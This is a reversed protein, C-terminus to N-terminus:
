ARAGIMWCAATFVCEGEVMYDDLAARVTALVRARTEDDAERLAGGVPGLRSVYALLDPESLRCAVDLPQVDIDRWGSEALIRRVRDGDGFAFQGPM